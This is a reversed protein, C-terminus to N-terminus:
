QQYINELYYDSTQEMAKSFNEFGLIEALTDMGSYLDTGLGLRSGEIKFGLASLTTPCMDMTTYLRNEDPRKNETDSNIITVYVKREYDPIGEEVLIDDITLVMSLHDGAVVIVTDEYFDQETIWQVFDAIQSDSRYIVNEIQKDFDTTEDGYLLGDPQHTDVTLMTFNFPKDEAALATIKDKAFDFLKRDEYGWWWYYDSPINGEEIASFYDSVVYNGHTEFYTGRYAFAKDSGFMLMNNYGNDELIEGISIAGPLFLGDEGYYNMAIPVNLPIGSTHAVMGAVTWACNAAVKAGNLDGEKSFSENKLALETLRPILNESMAGGYEGTSFSTEMSECFIYILNKKNEPATIEIDDAEVYYTEFVDTKTNVAELYEDIKLEDVAYSVNVVMLVGAFVIVTARVFRFLKNNFLSFSIEKGAIKFKPKVEPVFRLLYFILCPIFVPLIYKVAGMVFDGIVGNGSGTLPARLTFLIQSFPINGFKELSWDTAYRVLLAFALLMFSIIAYVVCLIKMTTKKRTKSETKRM